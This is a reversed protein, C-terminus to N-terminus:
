RGVIAALGTQALSQLPHLNSAIFVIWFVTIGGPIAYREWLQPFLSAVPAPKIVEQPRYRAVETRRFGRRPEKAPQIRAARVRDLAAQPRIRTVAAAKM